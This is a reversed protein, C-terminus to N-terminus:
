QPHGLYVSLASTFFGKGLGMRLSVSIIQCQKVNQSAMAGHTFLPLAFNSKPLRDHSAKLSSGVATM